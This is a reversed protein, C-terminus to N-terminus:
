TSFSKELYGLFALLSRRCENVIWLYIRLLLSPDVPISIRADLFAILAGFTLGLHVLTHSILFVYVWLSQILRSFLKMISVLENLNLLFCIFQFHSFIDNFIAMAGINGGCKM